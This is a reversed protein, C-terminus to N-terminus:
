LNKSLLLGENASVDAVRPNTLIAVFFSSAFYNCLGIISVNSFRLTCERKISLTQPGSKPSM